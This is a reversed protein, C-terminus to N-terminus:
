TELLINRTNSPIIVELGDLNSKVIIQCCLRSTDKVAFALDLMDEEDDSAPPLRKFDEQSLYIHCTSCALAGGCAGEIPIDHKHAIELISLDESAEVLKSSNDPLIFNIKVMKKSKKVNSM